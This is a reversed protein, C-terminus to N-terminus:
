ESGDGRALEFVNNQYKERGMGQMVLEEERQTMRRLMLGTVEKITEWIRKQDRRKGKTGTMIVVTVETM